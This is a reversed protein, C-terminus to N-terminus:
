QSDGKSEEKSAPARVETPKWKMDEFKAPREKEPEVAYRKWERTADQPHMTTWWLALAAAVIAFGAAILYKM